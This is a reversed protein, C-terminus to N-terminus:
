IHRAMQRGGLIAPTIVKDAGIKEAKQINQKQDIRTLIKFQKSPPLTKRLAEASMVTLINDADSEFASIISKAKPLNAAELTEQQTADGIMVHFGAHELQSQLDPNRLIFLVTEGQELLLSAAYQSMPNYSCIIVHNSINRLKNMISLVGKIRKEIMPGFLLTIAAVFTSVGIVIMSIVFIKADVTQPTIDGYGLTSYTVLTYYIADVWDHIGHFQTRLLYSGIAGYAVAFLVSLWSIVQTYTMRSSNKVDFHSRLFILLVIFIISLVFNPVQLHGFFSNLLAVTLFCLSWLWASRRRHYLGLGLGVLVFGLFLSFVAGMQNSDALFFYQSYSGLDQETATRFMPIVSTLFHVIGVFIMFISMLTPIPNKLRMLVGGHNGFM